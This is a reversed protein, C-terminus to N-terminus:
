RRRGSSCIALWLDVALPIKESATELRRCRTNCTNATGSAKAVNVFVGQHADWVIVVGHMSSLKDKTVALKCAISMLRICWKRVGVNASVCRLLVILKSMPM